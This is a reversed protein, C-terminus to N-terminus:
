KQHLSMLVSQTLGVGSLTGKTAAEAEAVTKTPLQSPAVFHLANLQGNVHPLAASISHSTLLFLRSEKMAKELSRLAVDHVFVAGGSEPCSRARKLM